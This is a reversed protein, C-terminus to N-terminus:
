TSDAGVREILHQLRDNALEIVTPDQLYNLHGVGPLRLDVDRFFPNVVYDRSGRVLLHSVRPRSWAVPGLALVEIEAPRAGKSLCANLIELGCSITIVLLGRCSGTLSEWHATAHERYPSRSAGLFQSLNRWSALPLPIAAQEARAPSHYPFNAYIKGDVPLALQDLFQQQSRSLSCCGPDSLGSLLVARVSRLPHIVPPQFVIM